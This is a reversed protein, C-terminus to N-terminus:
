PRPYGFLAYLDLYGERLAWYFLGIFIAAAIAFVALVWIAIARLKPPRTVGAAREAAAGLDVPPAKGDRGPTAESNANASQHMRGDYESRSAPDKLIMYAETIGRFKRASAPDGNLDPHFIKALERYARTVDDATANPTLGLQSYYDVPENAPM